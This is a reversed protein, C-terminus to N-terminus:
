FKKYGFAYIRDFNINHKNLETLNEIEKKMESKFLEKNEESLTSTLIKLAASDFSNYLNNSKRYNYESTKKYVKIEKFKYHELLSRFDDVTPVYWPLEINEYEDELKLRSVIKTFLMIMPHRSNLLPFQIGINGSPKLSSFLLDLAKKPDKIWHFVSNSFVINFKNNFDIECISKVIFRINRINKAKLRKYCQKIMSPSKDVGLVSGKKVIDAVKFTLDGVGCGADLVDDYENFYLQKILEDGIKEQLGTISKFKDGNWTDKM